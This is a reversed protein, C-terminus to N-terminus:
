HVDSLDTSLEALRLFLFEVEDPDQTKPIYAQAGHFLASEELSISPQESTLVVTSTGNAIRQVLELSNMDSLHADVMVVNPRLSGMENVAKAASEVHTLVVEVHENWIDSYLELFESFNSQDDVILLRLEKRM